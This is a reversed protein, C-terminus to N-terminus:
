ERLRRGTLEMFVTELNPETSHISQICGQELYEKVKKASSSHNPLEIIKGDLLCIRLKNQHNYKLCIEKPIGCEVISGQNLLAIRDCLKEAEVMNHTTLIITTGREREKQILDHISSANSPDLGSTPEDLFLLKPTNMIAKAFALREKMGKSLKAVSRKRVEWLGVKQLVQSIKDKPVDNLGAFLKLNDYCSLREYLGLCEMMIGIERYIMKDLYKTDNELVMITGFSPKLQRTLLKLLTTKGAGSPGLLGFIEGSFINMNIDQLVKQDSFIQTLNSVKIVSKM